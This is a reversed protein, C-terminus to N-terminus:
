HKGRGDRDNNATPEPQHSPFSTFRTNTFRTPTATPIPATAARPRARGAAAAVGVHLAPVHVTVKEPVPSVNVTGAPTEETFTVM